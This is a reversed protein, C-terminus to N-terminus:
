DVVPIAASRKVKKRGRKKKKKKRGKRLKVTDNYGKSMDIKIDEDRYGDARVSWEQTGESKAFSRAFPTTGVMEDEDNYVELRTSTGAKGEIRIWVPVPAIVVDKPKARGTSMAASGLLGDSIASHIEVVPPPPPEGFEELESGKSSSSGTEGGLEDLNAKKKDKDDDDSAAESKSDGGSAVVAIAAGIGGLLLVVLAIILGTKKKKPPGGGPGMMAHPAGAPPPALHHPEVPPPPGPMMANPNVAGPIFRMVTSGIEIHDGPRLLAHAVPHGNLTTNQNSSSDKVEFNGDRHIIMLHKRSAFPDGLVVNNELGRGVSTVGPRLEFPVPQENPAFIVLHALAPGDAAAPAPAGAPAGGFASPAELSGIDSVDIAQTAEGTDGGMGGGGYAPAAPPPAGGGGGSPNSSWGDDWGASDAEAGTGWGGRRGGEYDHAARDDDKSKQTYMDGVRNRLNGSGFADGSSGDGYLDAAQRNQKEGGGASGGGSGGWNEDQKNSDWDGWEDWGGATSKRKNQDWGSARRDAEADTQPPGDLGLEGIDLAKTKGDAQAQQKQFADQPDDMGAWNDDEAWSRQRPGGWPDGASQNGWEDFGWDKESEGEAKAKKDTPSFDAPGGDWSANDM